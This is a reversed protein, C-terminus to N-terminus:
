QMGYDDTWLDGDIASSLGSQQMDLLTGPSSVLFDVPDQSNPLLREAEALLLNVDTMLLLPEMEILKEVDTRSGM